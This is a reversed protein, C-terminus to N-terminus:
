RARPSRADLVADRDADDGGRGEGGLVDGVPHDVGADRADQVEGRGHQRHGVTDVDALDVQGDLQLDEGVVDLALCRSTQDLCIDDRLLDRHADQDHTDGVLRSRDRQELPEGEVGVADGLEDVVQHAALVDALCGHDGRAVPELHVGVDVTEVAADLLDRPQEDLAGALGGLRQHRVEVDVVVVTGDGVEEVDGRTEVRHDDALALDEALGALRQPQALLEAGDAGGEVHEELLGQADALARVGLGVDVAGGRGQHGGRELPDGARDGAAADDDDTRARHGREGDRGDEPEAGAVDRDDVAAAVVGLSERALVVGARQRETSRVPARASASTTTEQVPAAPTRIVRSASADARAPTSVGSAIMSRASGWSTSGSTAVSGPTLRTPSAERASSRRSESAARSTPPTRAM